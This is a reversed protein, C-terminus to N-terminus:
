IELMMGILMESVLPYVILYFRVEKFKIVYGPIPHVIWADKENINAIADHLESGTFM